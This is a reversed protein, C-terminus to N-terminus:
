REAVIRFFLCKEGNKPCLLFEDGLKGGVESASSGM